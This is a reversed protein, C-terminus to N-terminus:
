RTTFAKGIPRPGLKYKEQVEILATANYKEYGLHLDSVKGVPIV